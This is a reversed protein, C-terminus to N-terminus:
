QSAHEIIDLGRNRDLLYVLGRGDTDVDNSQPSAAGTRPQGGGPIDLGGPHRLNSSILPQTM